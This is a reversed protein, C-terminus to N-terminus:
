SQKPKAIDAKMEPTKANDSNLKQPPPLMEHGCASNRILSVEPIKHNETQKYKTKKKSFKSSYIFYELKNKRWTFHHIAIKHVNNV